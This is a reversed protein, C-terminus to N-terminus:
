VSGGWGKVKNELASREESGLKENRVAQQFNRSKGGPLGSIHGFWFEEAREVKGTGEKPM